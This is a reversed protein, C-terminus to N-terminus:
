APFEQPFVLGLGPVPEVTAHGRTVRVPSAAALAGLEFLGADEVQEVQVDQAVVLALQGSLEPLLHPALVAGREAVLDAIELFPTVGGVRVVNPQVIDAAGADLLDRIRHIHHTNEGLAIPVDVARRLAAYGATDDALLPEEMWAIDFRSLATIAREAVPLTWRQNADVMLARDPGLIERVAAVRDLDEALDPKGVKIKAAAYGADVWRRAQAALDDLPYHLNVGSGYVPVSQRRRGILDPVGLGAAKARADWAATDLGALAITTIGGGGAEHLHRWTEHWLVDDVDRGVVRDRIDGDILARVATAGITPTWSMGVGEVGDDTRLRVEIVDLTTVEAGWPRTLAVRHPRTLLDTIRV